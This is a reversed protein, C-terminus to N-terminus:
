NKELRWLPLTKHEAGHYAFIRQIDKMQSIAYIYGIFIIVRIMRGPAEGLLGGCLFLLLPPPCLLLIFMGIGLGLAIIITM